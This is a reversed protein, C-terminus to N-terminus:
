VGGGSSLPLSPIKFFSCVRKMKMRMKMRRKWKEMM